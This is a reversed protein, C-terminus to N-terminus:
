LSKRSRSCVCRNTETCCVDPKVCSSCNSVEEHSSSKITLLNLLKYDLCYGFLGYRTRIDVGVQEYEFQNTQNSNLDRLNKQHHKFLLDNNISNWRTSLFAYSYLGISGLMPLLVLIVLVTVKM